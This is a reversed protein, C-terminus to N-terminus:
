FEESRKQFLAGRFLAGPINDAVAKQIKETM